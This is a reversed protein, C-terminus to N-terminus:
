TAVTTAGGIQSEHKYFETIAAIAADDSRCRGVTASFRARPRFRIPTSAAITPIPMPLGFRRKACCLTPHILGDEVVYRTLSAESIRIM